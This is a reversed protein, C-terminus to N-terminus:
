TTPSQAAPRKTIMAIPRRPREPEVDPPAVLDDPRSALCGRVRVQDATGAVRRAQLYAIRGLDRPQELGRQRDLLGCGDDVLEALAEGRQDVRGAVVDAVGGLVALEGDPGDGTVAIEHQDDARRVGV